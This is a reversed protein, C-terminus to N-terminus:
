KCKPLIVWGGRVKVADSNLKPNHAESEGADAQARIFEVAEACTTGAGAVPKPRPGQFGKLAVVCGWAFLGISIFVLATGTYEFVNTMVRRDHTASGQAIYAFFCTLLALVLGAAFYALAGAILPINLRENNANGCFTLIAVIAGGHALTIARLGEIAYQTALEHGKTFNDRDDSM